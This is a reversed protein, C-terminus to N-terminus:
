THASAFIRLSDLVGQPGDHKLQHLQRSQWAHLSARDSGLVAESVQCIRQAAHPFDLIRTAEPAHYDLFGQIWEAGDSVSAM